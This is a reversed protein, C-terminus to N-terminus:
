DAAMEYNADQILLHHLEVMHCDAPVKGAVRLEVYNHIDPYLITSAPHFDTGTIDFSVIDAGIRRRVHLPQAM